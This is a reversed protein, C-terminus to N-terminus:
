SCEGKNDDPTETVNELTGGSSPEKADNGSTSNSERETNKVDERLPLLKGDTINPDLIRDLDEYHCLKLFTAYMAICLNLLGRIAYQDAAKTLMMLKRRNKAIEWMFNAYWENGAGCIKTWAPKLDEAQADAVKGKLPSKIELRDKGKCQNMYDVIYGLIEGNADLTSDKSDKDQEVAIKVVESIMAYKVNVKFIKPPNDNSILKYDDDAEADELGLAAM